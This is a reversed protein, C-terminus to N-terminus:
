DDTYLHFQQFLLIRCQTANTFTSSQMLSVPPFPPGKPEHLDLLPPRAQMSGNVQNHRVVPQGRLRKYIPSHRTLAASSPAARPPRACVHEPDLCCSQVIDDEPRHTVCISLNRM